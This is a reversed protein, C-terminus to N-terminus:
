LDNGDYDIKQIIDSTSDFDQLRQGTEDFLVGDPNMLVLRRGTHKAFERSRGRPMNTVDMKFVQQGFQLLSDTVRDSAKRYIETGAKDPSSWKWKRKDGGAYLYKEYAELEEADLAEALLCFYQGYEIENDLELISINFFKCIM